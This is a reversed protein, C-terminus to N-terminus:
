AASPSLTPITSPAGSFEMKITKLGLNKETTLILACEDEPASILIWRPKPKPMVEIDELYRQDPKAMATMSQMDEASFGMGMLDIDEGSLAQLEEMLKADDWEAIEGVKNDALRYAKIQAPTLNDAVHVPVKTMGLQRAALWRTHGVVIVKAKDVVIPQRFGFEKLATAVASVANQNRRPNNPYPTISNIDVDVVKM